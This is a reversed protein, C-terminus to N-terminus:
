ISFIILNNILYELVKYQSITEVRNKTIEENKLQKM